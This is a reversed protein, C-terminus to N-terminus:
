GPYLPRLPQQAPKQQLHKYKAFAEYLAQGQWPQKNQQYPLFCLKEVERKLESDPLSHLLQTLRSINADIGQSAWQLLQTGAETSDNALCAAKLKRSSFKLLTPATQQPQKQQPWSLKSWLLLLLTILWLVLFLTSSYTWQWPSGATVPLTAADPEQPAVATPLETQTQPQAPNAAVKLTREPLEAYALENTKSNWWPIRVAPLV